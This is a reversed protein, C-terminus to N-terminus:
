SRAGFMTDPLLLAIDPVFLILLVAVLMAVWFPGIGRFIRNMPVDPAIGKVVFVNLGVPPSILAMELVIVMLVGFWVLDVGQGELIPQVLPVALVLIAFGELFTGLVIFLALVLAVVALPGLGLAEVATVLRFPIGSMAVFTKFVFAGFLILFVTGSARLTSDVVDALSARTLTRRALAVLFALAAGIGAAEIASFVGLYIGGITAAILGIIWGARGLARLREGLPARELTTPARSPDLGVVVRIAVVFLASLMLGPLVGAIFLRGISEETLIAYVVFGASPPILIGLTGGAAIAGTALGDDYGHRQMEPLSVRGMTLAAALSSGSLASFGACGVVTSSALGGRFHGFWRHAADYLDRSMGSIGALNGMLIFLPLITLAYHSAEGFMENAVVPLMAAPRILWIGLGGVGLMALGVPLRLLLLVFLLAFGALGTEFPSM